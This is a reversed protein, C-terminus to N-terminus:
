KKVIIYQKGYSLLMFQLVVIIIQLLQMAQVNTLHVVHFFALGSLDMDAVLLLYYIPLCSIMCIITPFCIIKDFLQQLVIKTGFLNNSIITLSYSEM